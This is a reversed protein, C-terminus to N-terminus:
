WTCVKGTPMANQDIGRGRIISISYHPLTVRYRWKLYRKLLIGAPIGARALSVLVTDPGKQQIIKDALLGVAQASPGAFLELAEEYAHMYAPSPTYEVPLMECYHRGSQILKEREQTPQPAVLGTIDKLLLEVDEKRYSTKM